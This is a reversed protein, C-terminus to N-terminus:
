DTRTVMGNKEYNEESLTVHFMVSEGLPVSKGENTGSSSQLTDEQEKKKYSIM